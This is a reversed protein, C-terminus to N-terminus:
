NACPPSLTRIPRINALSTLVLISRYGAHSSRDVARTYACTAGVVYIRIIYFPIEYNPTPIPPLLLVPFLAVEALLEEWASDLQCM